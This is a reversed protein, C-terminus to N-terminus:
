NLKERASYIFILELENDRQAWLKLFIKAAWTFSSAGPPVGSSLHLYKTLYIKVCM